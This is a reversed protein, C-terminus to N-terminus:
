IKFFCIGLVLQLFPRWLDPGSDLFLRERSDAEASSYLSIQFKCGRRCLRVLDFINVKYRDSRHHFATSCCLSFPWYLSLESALVWQGVRPTLLPVATALLRAPWAEAASPSRQWWGMFTVAEQWDQWSYVCDGRCWFLLWLSSVEVKPFAASGQAIGRKIFGMSVKCAHCPM